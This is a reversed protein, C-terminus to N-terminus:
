ASTNTETLPAQAVKRPGTASRPFELRDVRCAYALLGSSHILLVIM